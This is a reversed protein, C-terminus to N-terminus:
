VLRIRREVMLWYMRMECCPSFNVDLSLGGAIWSAWRTASLYRAAAILVDAQTIIRLLYGLCVLAFSHGGGCDFPRTKM